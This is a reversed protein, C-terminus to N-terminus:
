EVDLIRHVAAAGIETLDIGRAFAGSRKLEEGIQVAASAAGRGGDDWLADTLAKAEESTLDLQDGDM